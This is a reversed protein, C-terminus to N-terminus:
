DAHNNMQPRSADYMSPADSKGVTLAVFLIILPIAIALAIIVKKSASM